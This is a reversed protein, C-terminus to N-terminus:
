HSAKKSVRWRDRLNVRGEAGRARLIGHRAERPVFCSFVRSVLHFNRASHYNGIRNFDAIVGRERKAARTPSRSLPHLLQRQNDAAVMMGTKM